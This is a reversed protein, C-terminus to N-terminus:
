PKAVILPQSEVERRYFVRPRQVNRKDVEPVKEEGEVFAIEVRLGRASRMKDEQMEPVRETAYNLWERLLVKGDTPEDDAKATKLGEEVLAFTLYGHGLQEAELAAQYSQAATLIYMGKEYALQALGKSNMPGRRKEEAELAQGSNCADVVMLMTGADISEFTEELELDSISHSLIERLGTETLETRKGQYGLDHPILYFRQEQATGHGAFYVIVADEPQAAAIKQLEAPAAEPVKANTAGALRGLAYILNAKTAQQNFLKTVEIQTYQGVKRQQREVEAAFADGDAVAYKLDYATNAYKNVGAVILHLTGARKLSDAGNLSLTADSSKVNDRNFAYATLNNPGAVVSVTTELTATPQGKLVDGRWVKVLSGNRFLRLDRAGAPAEAINIKVQAARASVNTAPQDTTISVKPQRRDKQSIDAAAALKKGSLVDPLLGPHFYENFFIEVPSVDGLAPSFRWLIQNWGGPSGDFLGSPTVVLWDKGGNLTALTALLEGSQVNWLRASGDDSGSVVFKGDPSFDLANIGGSHGKLTRLEQGTNVEWLKITSDFGGSALLRGDSSFALRVIFNNHGTLHKLETGAQPDWLKISFSMDEFSFNDAANPNTMAKKLGWQASALLKGDSSWAVSNVGMSFPVKLTHLQQGTTVDTLQLPAGYGAASALIRGDPSFSVASSSSLNNATMDTFFTSGVPLINIQRGTASEVIRLNNPNSKQGPLTIGLSEMMSMGATLDGKAVADQVRKMEAEWKKPDKKIQDMIKKTDPMTMGGPPLSGPQTATVPPEPKKLNGELVALVRGDANFAANALTKGEGLSLSTTEKGSTVDWLKVAPKNTSGAMMFRGDPSLLAGHDVFGSVLSRKYEDSLTVARRVGGTGLEWLSVGEHAALTLWKGDTSFTVDSIPLAAGSLTRIESGSGVDWLKIQNDIGSSALMKGNGSFAIAMIPGEHGKLTQTTSTTNADVVSIKHDNNSFSIARKDPSLAFKAIFSGLSPDSSTSQAASLSLTKMEKGSAVDWIKISEKSRAAVWAGDRSFIVNAVQTAEAMATTYNYPASRVTFKQIRKGTTVEWLNLEDTNAVGRKSGDFRELVAALLKGNPSLAVSDQAALREEEAFAISNLERGNTDWMRISSSQLNLAALTSGDDSLTAVTLDKANPLLTNGVERGTDVDWKLVRQDVFTILTRGDASFRFPRSMSTTAISPIGIELQRLLRGTSLEWIKIANGTIGMSALLKGDPSFALQSQPSTIGAQLVIEPKNSPVPQTAKVPEPTPTPSAEVGIGRKEQPVSQQPKPDQSVLPLSTSLLSFVCIATLLKM